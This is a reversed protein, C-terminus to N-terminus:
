RNKSGNIIEMNKGTYKELEALQKKNLKQVILGWHLSVIDGSALKPEPTIGDMTRRFYKEVSKSFKYKGNRKIIKQYCVKATSKKVTRVIGWGIRCRDFNDVTREVRDGVFNLYLSNFSHHLLIGDPLNDIKEQARKKNMEANKSFKRILRIVDARGVQELLRDGIWFAEIIRKDFPNKIGNARAITKLYPYHGKFKKIALKLESESATGDLYRKFVKSFDSGGCYGLCNPMLSYRGALEIPKM